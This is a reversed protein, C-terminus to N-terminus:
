NEINEYEKDEINDEVIKDLEYEKNETFQYKEIARKTKRFILYIFLGIGGILLIGLIIFFAILITSHFNSDSLKENQKSSEKKTEDTKEEEEKEEEKEEMKEEEIEEKKEEEIEEIKEEEKKIEKEVKKEEEEEEEEDDEIDVETFNFSFSPLIYYYRKFSKELDYNYYTGGYFLEFSIYIKYSKRKKILFPKIPRKCNQGDCVLISFDKSNEYRTDYGNTIKMIVKFKDNYKIELLANKNAKDITYTIQRKFEDYVNIENYIYPDIKFYHIGQYDYKWEYTKGLDIKIENITPNMWIVGKEFTFAEFKLVIKNDSNKRFPIIEAIGPPNVILKKQYYGFYISLSLCDYDNFLIYLFFHGDEEFTFDFQNNNDADFIIEKGFEVGNVKSLAIIMLFILIINKM